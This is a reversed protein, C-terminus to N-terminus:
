DAKDKSPAARVLRPLGGSCPAAETRSTAWRQVAVDEDSSDGGGPPRADPGDPLPGLKRRLELLEACGPDAELAGEVFSVAVDHMQAEMAATAGRWAAKVHAPDSRLAATCHEICELWRRQRLLAWQGIGHRRVTRMCRQQSAVDQLMWALPRVRRDGRPSTVVPPGEGKTAAPAAPRSASAAAAAPAPGPPLVPTTSLHESLLWGSMGSDTAVLSWLGSTMGSLVRENHTIRADPVVDADLSPQVRLVSHQGGPRTHYAVETPTLRVTPDMDAGPESDAEDDSDDVEGIVCCPVWGKEHPPLARRAYVWGADGAADGDPHPLVELQEGLQVPALFGEGASAGPARAVPRRAAVLYGKEEAPRQVLGRVARPARDALVAQVPLWGAQDPADSQRAYLWGREGEGAGIHEIKLRTGAEVTLYGAEGPPVARTAVTAGGVRPIPAM